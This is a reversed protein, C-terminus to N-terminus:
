NNGDEHLMSKFYQMEEVISFKGLHLQFYKELWHLVQRRQQLNRTKGHRLFFEMATQEEKRPHLTLHSDFFTGIQEREIQFGLIGALETLFHLHFDPNYPESNLRLWNKEVWDFLSSDTENSYVTQKLVSLLFFAISLKKLDSFIGSFLYSLQLERIIPLLNPKQSYTIDLIHGPRILARKRSSKKGGGMHIIFSKKGESRALTEVIHKTDNYPFIKLVLIRDKKKM